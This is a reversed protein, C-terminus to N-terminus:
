SSAYEKILEEICKAEVGQVVTVAGLACPLILCLQGARNKKDQLMYNNLECVDFHMQSSKPLVGAVQILNELRRLVTVDVRKLTVALRTALLMGLAVAEGHLYFKFQTAAEIAHGFTHGFNLVRRLGHDYEDAQVIRSKIACCTTIALQLIKSERNKLALMNEELWCFFESDCAMGYKIIEALGSAYEREPLTNLYDPKILVAQAQYFTGILNKIGAYNCGTKGGMAADVQGILTTPIQLWPMGRMYISAAFGTLDGIVGGGISILTSYRDHQNAVLVDIIKTVADWTKYQEGSPITVTQVVFDSLFNLLNNLYLEAVVHDTVVVIKRNLINKQLLQQLQLDSGIIHFNQM